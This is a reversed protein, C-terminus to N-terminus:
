KTKKSLLEMYHCSNNNWLSGTLPTRTKWQKGGMWECTLTKEGLSLTHSHSYISTLSPYPNQV